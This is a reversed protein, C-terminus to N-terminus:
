DSSDWQRASPGPGQVLVARDGGGRGVPAKKMTAWLLQHVVEVTTPHKKLEVDFKRMGPSNWGPHPRMATDIVGSAPPM